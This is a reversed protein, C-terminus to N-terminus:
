SPDKERNIDVYKVGYGYALPNNKLRKGWTIKALYCEYAAPWRYPSNEIGIFVEMGLQFLEDTEFYLGNNSFNVMRAGENIGSQLSEITVPAKYNAREHRRKDFQQDM